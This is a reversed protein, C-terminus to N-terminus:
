IHYTCPKSRHDIFRVFSFSSKSVRKLNQIPNHTQKTPLM